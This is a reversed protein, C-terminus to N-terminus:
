CLFVALDGSRFYSGAERRQSRVAAGVIDLAFPQLGFCAALQVMLVMHRAHIQIMHAKQIAKHSVLVHQM